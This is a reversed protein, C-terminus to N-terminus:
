PFWRQLTERLLVFGPETCHDLARSSLAGFVSKFIPGGTKRGGLRAAFDRARKLERPKAAGEDWLGQDVLSARLDAFRTLGFATAVHDSEMWLWAELMPEIVMVEFRDRDWGADVLDRTMDQQIQAAGPYPDFHEDIIVVAREHTKRHTALNASAGKWLGQDTCGGVRFIDESSEPDLEFRNCRMAYHWNDRRFFARLGKEMHSDALHFVVPRM